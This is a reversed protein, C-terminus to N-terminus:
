RVNEGGGKQQSPVRSTTVPNETVFYGVADAIKEEEQRKQTRWTMLAEEEKQVEKSNEEIRVRLEALKQNIEEELRRNEIDKRARMTDLNKQLVREYTDLAKDRQVADEVIERVKVGAADLAVLISSRKVENNLARIHESQLMDAVKLITYGHPPTTIQASNYLEQFSGPNTIPATFTTDEKIDPIVDIVRANGPKPPSPVPEAPNQTAGETVVFFNYWRKSMTEPM